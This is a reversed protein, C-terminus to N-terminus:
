EKDTAEEKAEEKKAAQKKTPADQKTFTAKIEEIDVKKIAPRAGLQKLM